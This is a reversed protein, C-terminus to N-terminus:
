KAGGTKKTAPVEETVVKEEKPPAPTMLILGMKEAREMEESVLTKDVEKTERAFIRFTTKDKLTFVHSNGKIETIKM